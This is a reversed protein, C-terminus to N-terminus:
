PQPECTNGTSMAWSQGNLLRDLKFSERSRKETNHAYSNLLNQLKRRQEADTFHSRMCTMAQEEVKVAALASEKSTTALLSARKARVYQAAAKMQEATWPQAKIWADLDDRVGNNDTDPGLLSDSRDLEPLSIRKAIQEATERPAAAIAGSSAPLPGAVAPAAPVGSAVQASEGCGALANICCATIIYAISKCLSM